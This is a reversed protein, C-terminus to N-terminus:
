HTSMNGDKSPPRTTGLALYTQFIHAVAKCISATNGVAAPISLDVNSYPFKQLMHQYNMKLYLIADQAINTLVMKQNIAGAAELTGGFNTGM